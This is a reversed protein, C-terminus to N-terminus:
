DFIGSSLLKGNAVHQSSDSFFHGAIDSAAPEQGNIDAFSRVQQYVLQRSTGYLTSRPMSLSSPHELHLGNSLSSLTDKLPRLLTFM